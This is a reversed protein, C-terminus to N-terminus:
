VRKWNEVELLWDSGKKKSVHDTFTDDSQLVAVIAQVIADDDPGEDGSIRGFHATAQDCWEFYSSRRDKPKQVWGPLKLEDRLIRDAPEKVIRRAM